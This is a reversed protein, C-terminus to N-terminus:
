GGKGYDYLSVDKIILDEADIKIEQVVENIKDSLHTYNLGDYTYELGNVGEVLTLPDATSPMTPNYVYETGLHLIAIM